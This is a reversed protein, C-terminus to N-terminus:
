NLFTVPNVGVKKLDSLSLLRLASLLTHIMYSKETITYRASGLTSRVKSPQLYLEFRDRWFRFVKYIMLM